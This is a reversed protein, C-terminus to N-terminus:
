DDIIIVGQPKLVRYIERFLTTKDDLHTLVGKSFVLDFHNDPFPVTKKPHYEYFNVYSNLEAPTRRKAEKVMWPNIELGSIKVQYKQALYFVVGGLGFGIDLVTQNHLQEKSLMNEIAKEGGESMMGQGYAEELFLCYDEPYEHILKEIDEQM